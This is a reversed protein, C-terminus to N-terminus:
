RHIFLRCIWNLYNRLHRMRKYVDGNIRDDCRSIRHLLMATRGQLRISSNRFYDEYNKLIASKINQPKPTQSQTTRSSSIPRRGAEAIHMGATSPPTTQKSFITKKAKKLRFLAPFGTQHLYIHCSGNLYSFAFTVLLIVIRLRHLEQNRRPRGICKRTLSVCLRGNETIAFRSARM